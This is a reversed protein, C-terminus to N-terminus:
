RVPCLVQDPAQIRFTFEHDGLYVYIPCQLEPSFGLELKPDALGAPSLVAEPHVRDSLYRRLRFAWATVPADSSLATGSVAMTKTVSTRSLPHPEKEHVFNALVFTVPSFAPELGGM